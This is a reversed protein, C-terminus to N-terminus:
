EYRGGAARRRVLRGGAAARARPAALRHRPELRELDGAGRKRSSRQSARDDVDAQATLGYQLAAMAAYRALQHHRPLTFAAPHRWAHLRRRNFPAVLALAFGIVLLLDFPDRRNGM